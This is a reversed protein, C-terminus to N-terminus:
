GGARAPFAGPAPAAPAMTRRLAPLVEGTVWKRFAKAQQKRSKFILTYFGAETLFTM